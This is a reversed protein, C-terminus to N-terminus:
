VTVCEVASGSRKGLRDRLELLHYISRLRVLLREVIELTKKGFLDRPVAILPVVKEFVCFGVKHRRFSALALLPENGGKEGTKQDVTIM